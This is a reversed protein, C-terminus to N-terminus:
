PASILPAYRAEFQQAGHERLVADRVAAPLLASRGLAESQRQVWDVRPRRRPEYADLAADVTESAHLLEALVAADEIAMCGSQGMMPSSAHAADGILIVRGSRWGPVHLEEVTSCHIQDDREVAGLFRQVVAPFSVFRERLRGLRGEMPDRRPAPEVVYGSGYTRRAGVSYMAFLCGEGLWFQVEDEVEARLPALSRWAMQGRYTPSVKGIAWTRVTSGIGDAGIVLEYDGRTGDSFGVSVLGDRQQLSRLGVGLRCRACDVARLLLAKQLEDRGIGVGSGTRNWLKVLDIECLREGRQDLHRFRRLTSGTRQIEVGVDLTRLVQMANPQIVIGAGLARWSESREILDPSFGGRRLAIAATLGAIGGGVILIRLSTAMLAM